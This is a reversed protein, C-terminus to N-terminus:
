SKILEIIKNMTTADDDFGGHTSSASSQAPASFAQVNAATGIYQDFYKEMGLIPTTVGGEFSECVLYLLSRSYGLIARCTTDQQETTDSLHFQHYRKVKGSKIAPVVADVFTQVTVAPAMFNVTDFSWDYQALEKVMYSHVISGASHGILHLRINKAAPSEKSAKYM